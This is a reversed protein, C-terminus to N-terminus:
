GEAPAAEAPPQEGEAPAAAPATDFSPPRRIESEPFSKAAQVFGAPTQAPKKKPPPDAAVYKPEGGAEAVVRSGDCFLWELRGTEDQWAYFIDPVPTPKPPCWAQRETTQAALEKARWEDMAQRKRVNQVVSAASPLRERAQAVLKMGEEAVPKVDVTKDPKCGALSTLTREYVELEPPLTRGGEELLALAEAPWVSEPAFATRELFKTLLANMAKAEDAALSRSVRCPDVGATWYARNPARQGGLSYEYLEPPKAPARACGAGCAIVVATLLSFRGVTSITRM